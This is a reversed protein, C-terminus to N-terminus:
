CWKTNGRITGNGSRFSPMEEKPFPVYLMTTLMSIVYHPTHITIRTNSDLVTQSQQCHLTKLCKKQVLGTVHSEKWVYEGFANIM